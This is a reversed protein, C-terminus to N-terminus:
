KLDGKEDEPRYFDGIRYDASRRKRGSGSTDLKNKTSDSLPPKRLRTPRLCFGKRWSVSHIKTISSSPIFATATPTVADLVKTARSTYAVSALHGVIRAGASAMAPYTTKGAVFV